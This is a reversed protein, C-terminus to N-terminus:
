RPKRYRVFEKLPHFVVSGYLDTTRHRCPQRVGDEIHDGPTTLRVLTKAREQLAHLSHTLLARAIGRRRWERRVAVELLEGRGNGARYM